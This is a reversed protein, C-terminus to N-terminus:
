AIAGEFLCFPHEPVGSHKCLNSFFRAKEEHSIVFGKPMVFM